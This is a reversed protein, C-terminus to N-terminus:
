NTTMDADEAKKTSEIILTGDSGVTVKEDESAYL